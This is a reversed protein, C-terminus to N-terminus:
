EAPMWTQLTTVKESENIFNLVENGEHMGIVLKQGDSLNTWDWVSDLGYINEEVYQMLFEMEFESRDHENGDLDYILLEREPNEKCLYTNYEEDFEGLEEKEIVVYIQDKYYFSNVMESYAYGDITERLPGRFIGAEDEKLTKVDLRYLTATLKDGNTSYDNRWYYIYKETAIPRSGEAIYEEEFNELSFRYIKSMTSDTGVDQDWVCYLFGDSVSLFSFGNTEKNSVVETEEGTLLDRQIIGTHCGGQAVAYYLKDDVITGIGSFQPEEEEQNIKEESNQNDVNSKEVNGSASETSSGCGIMFVGILLICLILKTINIYRM